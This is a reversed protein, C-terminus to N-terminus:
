LFLLFLVTFNDDRCGMITKDWSLRFEHQPQCLLQNTSLIGGGGCLHHYKIVDFSLRMTPLKFTLPQLGALSVALEDFLLSSGFKLVFYQERRHLDGTGPKRM